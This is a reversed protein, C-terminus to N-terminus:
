GFGRHVLLCDAVPNAPRKGLVAGGKLQSTGWLFHNGDLAQDAIANPAADSTRQDGLMAGIVAHVINISKM